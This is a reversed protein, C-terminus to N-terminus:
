RGNEERYAEILPGLRGLADNIIKIVTRSSITAGTIMDIEDPATEAGRAKVGELPPEAGDFQSVFTSDKGIKDGLGPTEKNELVKMGLLQGTGPDFGFILNIMDQFGPEGAAIAFGIRQGEATYGVYVQEVDRPDVGEALDETLTGDQLYLTDYRAPTKLVEEVALRLMKAKYAQIAPQTGRFVFVILTGAVLGASTLTALLRGAPVRHQEPTPLRADNAESM